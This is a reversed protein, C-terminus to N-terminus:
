NTVLPSRSTREEKGLLSSVNEYIVEVDVASFFIENVEKETRSAVM